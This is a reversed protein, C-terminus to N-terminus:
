IFVGPSCSTCSDGGTNNNFSGPPCPHCLPSGTFSCLLTFYVLVQGTFYVTSSCVGNSTFSYKSHTPAIQTRVKHLLGPQLASVAATWSTASLFRQHVAPLSWSISVAGPWFLVCVAPHRSLSLSGSRLKSKITWEQLKLRRLLFLPEGKVSCFCSLNRVFLFSNLCEFTETIRWWVCVCFFLLITAEHWIFCGDVWQQWVAIRSCLAWMYFYQFCLLGPDHQQSDRSNSDSRDCEGHCHHEDCCSCAHDPEAGHRSSLSELHNWKLSHLFWSEPNYQYDQPKLAQSHAAVDRTQIQSKNCTTGFRERERDENQTM